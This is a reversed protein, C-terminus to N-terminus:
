YAYGRVAPAPPASTSRPSTPHCLPAPAHTHAFARLLDSVRTYGARQGHTPAESRRQTRQIPTDMSAPRRNVAGPAISQACTDSASRPLTEPKNPQDAKFVPTSPSTDPLPARPAPPRATVARLLTTAARRREVQDQATRAIEELTTLASLLLRALVSQDLLQSPLLFPTATM